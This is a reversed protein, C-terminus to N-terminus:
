RNAEILLFNKEGFRDVRLLISELTRIILILPNKYGLLKSAKVELKELARCIVGGCESVKLNSFYIRLLNILERKTYERIHGDFKLSVPRDRKPTSLLLLGNEKLVYVLEKLMLVADSMTLHEILEFAIAHTFIRDRFPLLRCDALIFVMNGNSFNRKKAKKIANRDIDVEVVFNTRSLPIAFNGTGGGADLIIGGTINYTKIINFRLRSPADKSFFLYLFSLFANLNL